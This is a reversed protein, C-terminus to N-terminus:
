KTAEKSPQLFLPKPAPRLNKTWEDKEPKAPEFKPQRRSWNRAAAQWDKITNGNSQRWGNAEYHDYYAEANGNLSNAKWFEKVSDLSPKPRAERKPKPKTDPILYSHNGLGNGLGNGMQSITLAEGNGMQSGSPNLFGGPILVRYDGPKHTGNPPATYELWGAAVAKDRVRIADKKGAYGLWGCLEEVWLKIPQDTGLKDQKRAVALVLFCGNAWISKAAESEALESILRLIHVARNTGQQSSRSSADQIM